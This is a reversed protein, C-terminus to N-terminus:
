GPAPPVQSPASPRDRLPDSSSSRASPLPLAERGARTPGTRGGIPGLARMLGPPLRGDTSLWSGALILILGAFAGAGPSEDLIIMGLGLAVVPNIYTVVLARGAGIELILRNWIVFAVATCLVGLVVISIVETAPPAPTPATSIGIPALMLSAVGLAAGVVVLPNLEALHRRLIMPGISYGLAVGLFALVGIIEDSSGALNVGVLVVVGSFGVFLGALRLGQVRESHDFWIALVAVILPCAAIVIAAISSDVHQEGFGLLPFPLAIEILAFIAIWKWHHRSVNGLGARLALPLLVLAGLLVRSFAIWGPTAGDDIAVKIFLYPVGWILSLAVFGTWARASM